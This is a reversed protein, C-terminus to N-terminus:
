DNELFGLKVFDKRLTDKDLMTSEDGWFIDTNEFLIIKKNKIYLQSPNQNKRIGLYHTLVKRGFLKKEKSCVFKWCPEKAGFVSDDEYVVALGKGNCSKYEIIDKPQLLYIENENELTTKKIDM